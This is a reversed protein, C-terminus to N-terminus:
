PAMVTYTGRDFAGAETVPWELTFGLEGSGPTSKGDESELVTPKSVGASADTYICLYGPPAKGVGKCHEGPTNTPTYEVNAVPIPASLALAFGVSEQLKGGAGSTPAGVGYVGSESRQPPLPKLSSVGEPGERGTEGRQGKLGDTGAPGQIAIGPIGTLGQPGRNGKLKRLVKPNIQRTSNILYHSAALAGGSMAFVLALTAVVNAYSLHRRMSRKM